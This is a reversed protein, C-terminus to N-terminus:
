RSRWQKYASYVVMPWLLAVSFQLWFAPQPRMAHDVGCVWGHFWVAIVVYILLALGVM